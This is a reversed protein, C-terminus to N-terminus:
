EHGTQMQTAYGYPPVRAGVDSMHEIGISRMHARQSVVNYSETTGDDLAAGRAVSIRTTSFQKGVGSCGVVVERAEARDHNLLEEVVPLLFHENPQRLVTFAATVVAAWNVSITRKSTDIKVYPQRMAEESDSVRRIDNLPDTGQWSYVFTGSMTLEVLISKLTTMEMFYRDSVLQHQGLEVAFREVDMPFKIWDLSQGGANGGAHSSWEGGYRTFTVPVARRLLTVVRIFNWHILDCAATLISTAAIDETDCLLPALRLAHEVSIDFADFESDKRMFYQHLATVITLNSAWVHIRESSRMSHPAIGFKNKIVEIVEGLLRKTNTISPYPLVGCFIMTWVKISLTHLVKWMNLETDMALKSAPTVALMKRVEIEKRQAVDLNCNYHAFRSLMPGGALAYFPKNTAAYVGRADFTSWKEPELRNAGGTKPDAKVLALREVTRYAESLLMKWLNAAKTEEDDKGASGKYLKQPLENFIQVVDGKCGKNTDCLDTMHGSARATGDPCIRQLIGLVHSKGSAQQAELVAHLHLSNPSNPMHRRSADPSAIFLWLMVEHLAAVDLAGDIGTYFRTMMLNHLTDGETDMVRTVREANGAGHMTDYRTVARMESSINSIDEMNTWLDYLRPIVFDVIRKHMTNRMDMDAATDRTKIWREALMYLVFFCDKIHEDTNQVGSKRFGHMLAATEYSCAGAESEQVSTDGHRESARKRANVARQNVMPMYRIYFEDTPAVVKSFDTTIANPGIEWVTNRPWTLRKRGAPRVAGLEIGLRGLADQEEEGDSVFYADIDTFDLHVGRPLCKFATEISLVNSISYMNEEDALNHMVPDSFVVPYGPIRAYMNAVMFWGYMDICPDLPNATLARRQARPDRHLILNWAQDYTGILAADEHRMMAWLRVGVISTNSVINGMQHCFQEFTPVAESADGIDWVTTGNEFLLEVFVRQPQLNTPVADGETDEVDDVVDTGAAAAGGRRRSRKRQAEQPAFKQLFNNHVHIVVTAWVKLVTMRMRAEPSTEDCSVLSPVSGPALDRYDVVICLTHMGHGWLARAQTAPTTVLGPCKERSPDEEHAGSM